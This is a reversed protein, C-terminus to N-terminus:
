GRDPLNVRGPSQVALSRGAAASLQLIDGSRFRAREISGIPLSGTVIGGEHRPFAGFRGFLRIIGQNDALAEFVFEEIGVSRGVEALLRVLLTGIGRAQWDDVVALAIEAAGPRDALRVLRGIAVPRGAIMAGWALHRRHDIETLYALQSRSLNEIPAMFRLRRSAPSLMAMGEQLLAKDNPGVPRFEIETGDTLVATATAGDRPM